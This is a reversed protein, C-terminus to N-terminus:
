NLAEPSSDGHRSATHCLAELAVAKFMVIGSSAAMDVEEDGVRAWDFCQILTGLVMGMTRMALSEGPCKRRGMGFSMMLKGDASGHEFREPRFEEPAPGCEAPDRHIAYANVLVITGAAVDYGHLQCDAAAEHPLLLPAAPCLRLTESIICHLYPLHPLDKKDLLRSPEGSLHADIEEQAKKLVAPHNLLLGMAWETTTSTTETGVGLLNAVLAAIFTDTYLGPESKQLSLMVGIMGQEEEEQKDAAAQQKQRERDILKYIFANRRSTTDALQRAVGRWDFWRLVPLYDWLNAVGVLPVTADVVDKMERAEQSMDAGDDSYTNRSRALAEMLVSHSLDFLRRKLEVRATAGGATLRALRRVLARLERAVVADSMLDVRRASLLHVVAVRRAARWHAGYNALTLVTYDFSVERVSPFHPRNALTADLDSSFCERALEASTVVVAPRSGLRLSFVPGHRAALRALTAHLPKKLFPLHGLFPVALAPGPPLRRRKKTLFSRLLLATLFTIAAVYFFPFSGMEM